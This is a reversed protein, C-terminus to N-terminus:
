ETYTRDTELGMCTHARRGRINASYIGISNQMALMYEAHSVYRLSWIGPGTM